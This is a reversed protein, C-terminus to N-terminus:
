EVPLGASEALANRKETEIIGDHLRQVAAKAETLSDWQNGEGGLEADHDAVWVIRNGILAPIIRWFFPIGDDGLPSAATWISNDDSDFDEDWRLIDSRLRKVDEAVACVAKWLRRQELLGSPIRETQDILDLADEINM